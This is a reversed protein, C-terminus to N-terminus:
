KRASSMCLLSGVLAKDSPHWAAEIQTVLAPAESEMGYRFSSFVIWDPYSPPKRGERGCCWEYPDTLPAEGVILYLYRFSVLHRGRRLPTIFRLNVSPEEAVHGNGVGRNSSLQSVSSVFVERDM